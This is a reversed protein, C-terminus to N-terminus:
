SSTRLNINHKLPPRLTLISLLQMYNLISSLIEIFRRIHRLSITKTHLLLTLYINGIKIIAYQGPHKQKNFNWLCKAAPM